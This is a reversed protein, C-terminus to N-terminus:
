NASVAFLFSSSSSSSSSPAINVDRVPADSSSGHERRWVTVATASM